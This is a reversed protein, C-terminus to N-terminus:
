CHSVTTTTITVKVYTLPAYESARSPSDQARLVSSVMMSRKEEVVRDEVVCMVLEIDEEREAM